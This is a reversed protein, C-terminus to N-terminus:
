LFYINCLTPETANNGKGEGVGGKELYVRLIELYKEVMPCKFLAWPLNPHLGTEQGREWNMKRLESASPPCHCFEGGRGFFFWRPMKLGGYKWHSGEGEDKTNTRFCSGICPWWSRRSLDRSIQPYIKLLISKLSHFFRMLFLPVSGVWWLLWKRGPFNSRYDPSTTIGPSRWAGRSTLM